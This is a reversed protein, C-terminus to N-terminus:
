SISPYISLFFSLFFIFVRHACTRTLQCSQSSLSLQVNVLSSSCWLMGSSGGNTVIRQIRGYGGYGTLEGASEHTFVLLCSNRVGNNRRTGKLARQNLGPAVGWWGIVQLCGTVQLEPIFVSHSLSVDCYISLYISLYIVVSLLCFLCVSLHM